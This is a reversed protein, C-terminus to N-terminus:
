FIATEGIKVRFRRTSSWGSALRRRAAHTQCRGLFVFMTVDTACRRRWRGLRSSPPCRGNSFTPIFVPENRERKQQETVAKLSLEATLQGSANSSSTPQGAVESRAGLRGAFIIIHIYQSCVRERAQAGVIGM